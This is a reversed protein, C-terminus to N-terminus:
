ERVLDLKGFPAELLLFYRARTTPGEGVADPVDFAINVRQRSWISLLHIVTIRAEKPFEPLQLLDHPSGVSSECLRVSPVGAWGGPWNETAPDIEPSQM